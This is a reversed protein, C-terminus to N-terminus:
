RPPEPHGPYIGTNCDRVKSCIDNFDNRTSELSTRYDEITTPNNFHHIVSDMDIREDKFHKQVTSLSLGSLRSVEKQTVKEGIQHLKERAEYIRNITKYRRFAGNIGNSVKVKVEKELDCKDNFHVYKTKSTHFNSGNNKIGNIVLHTLRSLEKNEMRPKAYNNNIYGLFRLVEQNEIDPNLHVLNHIISTYVKHKTGDKILKPIFVKTYDIPKFDVFQNDVAVPTKINLKEFLENIPTGSFTYMLTNNKKEWTKYQNVRKEQPLTTSIDIEIENEYNVYLEPDYSIFSARGIDCCKEDVQEDKFISSRIEKWLSKFNQKTIQNSVKILVSIGGGSSSKCVLSVIHSFNKIFDQKYRDVDSNIDIDFYLYQSFSILNKDLDGNELKLSRRHVICNPTIYSLKKKLTKYSDDGISRLYRIDEIEKKQPNDKILRVLQPLDINREPILDKIGDKFYSFMM